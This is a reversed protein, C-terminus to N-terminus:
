PAARRRLSKLFGTRREFYPLLPLSVVLFVAGELSARATEGWTGAATRPVVWLLAAVIGAAYAVPLYTEMVFRWAAAASGRAHRGSIWLVCTANLGLGTTAAAAVGPLGLGQRIAALGVFYNFAVAGLGLPVLWNQRDIAMLFFGPLIALCSFVISV